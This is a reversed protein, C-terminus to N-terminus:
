DKQSSKNSVPWGAGEQYRGLTLTERQTEVGERERQMEKGCSAKDEWCEVGGGDCQSGM